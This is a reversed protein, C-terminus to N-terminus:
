ASPDGDSAAAADGHHRKQKPNKRTFLLYLAPLVLLTLFGSSIIGGVSAVGIGVTLESGMGTALALPLMGLVAAVTIMVVPRFEGGAAQVMAEHSTKGQERASEAHSLILVAVNVVIGILMVFGLMEFISVDLGTLYMALIVGIMSLPITTMIIFPRSFSELVAALALYTLLIALIGAEVFAATSEEMMEYDGRFTQRYGAPLLNREDVEANLVNVAEGLSFDPALGSFLKAVRMKDTRTIQVPAERQEIGTFAALAVTRDPGAPAQFEAIQGRGEREDLKVVIDYSRTGEKFVAADLGEINARLMAGLQAAPAQMDSLVARNPTVRLEPKGARVSTDVDEFGAMGRAVDQLQLAIRDLTPLEEGAIELEVPLRIGGLGSPKSVTIICNPVDAMRRRVEQVVDDIPYDRETKDVFRLLIQALYVGESALGAVGDVKGVGTYMYKMDPLDALLGEIERVRATTEGLAQQTPFEIKVFVEARDPDAMLTFGLSSSLQIALYLLAGAGLVVCVGAWRWRDLVHLFWVYAAILGDIAGNFANEVRRFLTQKDSRKRLLAACLIPTLTFSIFLSVVNVTLLTWAFPRFFLGAITGMMAIPLLVVVNTGASALVAEAVEEAGERAARKPDGHVDLRGVISELVVISNTVLVGTSLGIALLTPINLTFGMLDMVFMAIVITLPMTVAVVITARLNFLFFFLIAATLGVGILINQMTTDVTSRIFSGMDTIWILEMGGPLEQQLQELEDRVADVVAVANADAKKVVQIGICPSGNVYAEQRREETTMTVTGLDRIYRRAGNAGAVQMGAIEDVSAYEADFRVSYETGHERVRGAPTTNIGQQLAGYVDLTTLGAASLAERDLVVHVEREAGGILDVNAVGQLVSLRDRLNNDAYDYLEDVPADGTLVMTLIPQANIDFKQVVPKEVGSPFNAVELDIKERVDTAAVDVDVDLEFELTTQLVNEMCISTVHKLGDISSVADEIRKAVDIEIDTPTAGPWVTVVTIYPIDMKPMLELGLKRYSNIGLFALAIIVCSM